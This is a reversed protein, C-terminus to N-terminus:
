NILWDIKTLYTYKSIELYVKKLFLEYDNAKNIINMLKDESENNNMVQEYIDFYNSPYLLRAYLMHYEYIDLPKVKLYTELELFAEEKDYYFMSKIYEAIDRVELDFIFSIPNLFNLRYNPYFIRRHSLVVRGKNNYYSKAINVYSIANEALGIFYNISQLIIEKNIGLENIQYEIYDIKESWLKEWNNRYIKTNNHNLLLKKQFDIINFIDYEELSNISEILIYNYEGVKTLYSNHKNIIINNHTIGTSKMYDIIKVIDNLEEINRNFFVFFYEKNNINFYYKGNQEIINQADLNYNYNITDKM